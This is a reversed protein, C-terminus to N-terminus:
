APVMHDRPFPEGGAGYAPELGVPRPKGAPSLRRRRGRMPGYSLRYLALSMVQVTSLVPPITWPEFGQPGVGVKPYICGPIASMMTAM